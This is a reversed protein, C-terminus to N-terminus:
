SADVSEGGAVLRRRDIKGNPTRPLAGGVLRIEAPVMYAPMVARCAQLLEAADLQPRQAAPTAILHVVQGLAPQAVGFAVCEAVLGTAYALEEVETPSIRYGSSKIMEDRRGIFYLSGDADM